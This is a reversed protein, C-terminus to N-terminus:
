FRMNIVDEILPATHNLPLYLLGWQTVMFWPCGRLAQTVSKFWTTMNKTCEYRTYFFAVLFRGNKHVRIFSDILLM